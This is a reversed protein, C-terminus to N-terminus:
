EPAELRRAVERRVAKIVTTHDRNMANGIEPYSMGAERALYMVLGRALSIRATRRPGYIASIPIQTEASVALAIEKVSNSCRASISRCRKIDDPSLTFTVVGM